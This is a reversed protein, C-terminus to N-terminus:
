RPGVVLLRGALTGGPGLRFPAFFLNAPVAVSDAVTVASGTARVRGPDFPLAILTGDERVALVHGTPSWQPSLADALVSVTDRRELDFAVARQGDPGQYPLNRTVGLLLTRHGPLLSGVELYAEELTLLTDVSGGTAPVRLLHALRPDGETSFVDLTLYIRDDEGWRVDTSSTEPVDSVV